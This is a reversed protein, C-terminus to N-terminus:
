QRVEPGLIIKRSLTLIFTSFKLLKFNEQNSQPFRWKSHNLIEM